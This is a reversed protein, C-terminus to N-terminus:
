LERTGFLDSGIRIWNTGFEQALLYDQSMGMSLEIKKGFKEELHQRWSAMVLFCEKASKEFDDTRIRGITMLGQLYFHESQELLDIAKLVDEISEFGSKEDEKSTNIQLFLGIKRKSNKKLLKQLLELSDVSHIAVLNDVTLLQNIKNSQLHGIFHWNISLDKLELAKQVLEQVKNEGFDVQGLEYFSRIMSSPRTKSVALLKVGEKLNNQIKNLNEKLNQM